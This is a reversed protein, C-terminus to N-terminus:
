GNAINDVHAGKLASRIARDMRREAFPQARKMLREKGLDIQDSDRSRMDAELLTINEKLDTIEVANLLDGDSALASKVEEIARGAEMVAERLLREMIDEKAFKMSDLLMQEIEGEQLGYSPKVAVEQTVGTTAEQASVTLLGDADVSFRVKVRAIGAPLAPIGSLEFRALSRNQDVMEREGQVVHIKM